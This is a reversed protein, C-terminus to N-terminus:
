NPIAPVKGAKLTELWVKARAHYPAQAGGNGHHDSAPLVVREVPGRLEHTMVFVGSATATRDLLGISVLAPCKVRSAFNVADFYGCTRILAERDKGAQEKLWYPWPVARGALPATDDCGAPVNVLVATVKPNLGAAVISQLGGQSTGTVVLTHGDWEPCDALYDVARSCALFMRLFYSKERDDNGIAVYNKLAGESQKKYFDVPENLPLDHANVNLALWGEAAKPIVNGPPLQYVGAYQFMVIAPFKGPRDPRALQAQMKQGQPLDMTVRWFRVGARNCPEPVLVPKAPTKALEELRTQWFADFDAPRPASRPIGAQDVAAGGTAHLRSQGEGEADVDVLLIGSKAYDVAIEGSGTKLDVTGQGVVQGGDEKISYRANAIKGAPLNKAEVKWVIREGKAFLGSANGPVVELGARATLTFALTLWALQLGRNMMTM